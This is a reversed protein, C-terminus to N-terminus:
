YILVDPLRLGLHFKLLDEPHKHDWMAVLYTFSLKRSLKQKRCPFKQRHTPVSFVLFKWLHILFKVQAFVSVHTSYVLQLHKTFQEVPFCLVLTIFYLLYYIMIIYLISFLIYLIYMYSLTNKWCTNANYCFLTPKRHIYPTLHFCYEATRFNNPSAVEM